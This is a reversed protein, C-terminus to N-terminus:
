REVTSSEDRNVDQAQEEHDPLKRGCNACFAQDPGETKTGCFPCINHPQAEADSVENKKFNGMVTKESKPPTPIAFSALAAVSLGAFIQQNVPFAPAALMIGASAFLSITVLYKVIKPIEKFFSVLFVGASAISIYLIAQYYPTDAANIAAMLSGVRKLGEAALLTSAIGVGCFIKKIMNIGGNQIRENGKNM